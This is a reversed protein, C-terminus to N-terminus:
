NELDLRSHSILNDTIIKFRKTPKQLIQKKQDKYNTFTGNQLNLDHKQLATWYAFIFLRLFIM